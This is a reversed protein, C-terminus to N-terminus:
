KTSRQILQAMEEPNVKVEARDYTMLGNVESEVDTTQTYIAGVLGEGVLRPMRGFVKTMNEWLEARSKLTRYGWSEEKQWTHGKMPWGLGGFEGLVMARGSQFKPRGPGPYRHADTIDGYGRDAWGSPGDVLRSPDLSQTWEIIENTKFQGWGENFPVWVVISPHNRRAEMIAQWETRFIAESEPSRQLDPENMRIFSDGNPMDQWVLLGLRDAHYYWRDPEVKVHKRAMNFGLKKTMEIDYALAEDTPATYLGDPWWGQDLMGMQFLPKNNLALTVRGKRNEHLSIKRMAFYSSVEDEAGPGDEGLGVRLAYLYPTDPTWLIPKPIELVIPADTSGTGSAIEKGDRYARAWTPESSSGSAEVEVSLSKKDVDPVLKLGEIYTAPVTEIWVTQWIGTVATYWISGPRVVQKGRPQPGTNTPDWVSVVLEQEPSATLADTIDFSFPDYGGRHEGLRRGNVWVESEWDVAGFHLIVRKGDERKPADFTRRYWGRKEKGVEEMVGSLASEIPFPVLIKRSFRDPQPSDKSEISLDWLGNLSQWQDRVLQPRPYEPLANEPSVESAWRTMLPAQKPEWQAVAQMSTMSCMVWAVGIRLFLPFSKHM